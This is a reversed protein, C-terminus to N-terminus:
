AINGIYKCSLYVVSVSGDDNICCKCAHTGNIVCTDCHRKKGGYTLKMEEKDLVKTALGKIEDLKNM